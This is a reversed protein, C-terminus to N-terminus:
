PQIIRTELSVPVTASLSAAAHCGREAHAILKNIQEEPTPSKIKLKFTVKQFAAGPGDLDHKEADDFEARLDVNADNLIVDYLPAFQVM